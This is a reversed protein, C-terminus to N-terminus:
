AALRDKAARKQQGIKHSGPVYEVLLRSEIRREIEAMKAKSYSEAMSMM